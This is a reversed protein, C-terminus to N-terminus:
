EHPKNNPSQGRITETSAIKNHRPVKSLKKRRDVEIQPQDEIRRRWKCLQLESGSRGNEWRGNMELCDQPLWTTVDDVWWVMESEYRVFSANYMGM